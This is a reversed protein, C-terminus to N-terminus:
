PRAVRAAEEAAKAAALKAQYTERAQPSMMKHLKMRERQIDTSADRIRQRNREAVTTQPGYPFRGIESRLPAMADRLRTLAQEIDRQRQDSQVQTRRRHLKRTQQAFVIAAEAAAIVDKPLEKPM